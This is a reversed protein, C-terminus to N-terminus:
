ENLNYNEIFVPKNNNLTKHNEKINKVGDQVLKNVEENYNNEMM